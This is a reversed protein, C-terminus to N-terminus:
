HQDPMCKKCWGGLPVWQFHIIGLGFMCHPGDYYVHEFGWRKPRWALCVHYVSTHSSRWKGDAKVQCQHVLGLWFRDVEIAWRFAKCPWYDGPRTEPSEKFKWIIM